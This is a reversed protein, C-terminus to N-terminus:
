KIKRYFRHLMWNLSTVIVSFMVTTGFSNVKFSDMLWDAMILISGNAVLLFLLITLLTPIISLLELGPKVAINFIGMLVALLIATWISGVEIGPMFIITLFTVVTSSIFNLTMKMIKGGKIYKFCRIEAHLQEIAM